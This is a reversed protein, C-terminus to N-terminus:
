RRQDRRFAAPTTDFQKRFLRTLHEQHTFGCDLAIEAIPQDTRALLQQARKLRLGILYRHPPMGVEAAFVRALHSPSRYAADAIAQLSITRDSNAEMFDIARVVERSLARGTESLRRQKHRIGLHTTMIHSAICRSLHDSFFSDGGNTSAAALAADSLAFLLPEKEVLLQPMAVGSPDGDTMDMAVDDWVERRLYLHVSEMAEGLLVDLQIGPPVFRVSGAPVTGWPGKAASRHLVLLPDKAVFSGQFPAETQASIYLSRWDLGDSAVHVEAGPLRLMGHTEEVGFPRMSM